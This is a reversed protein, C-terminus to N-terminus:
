RWRAVGTVVAHLRAEDKSGALAAGLLEYLAVALPQYAHAIQGVLLRGAAELGDLEDDLRNGPPWVSLYSEVWIRICAPM